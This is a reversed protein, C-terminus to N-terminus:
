TPNIPNIRKNGFLDTAGSIIHLVSADTDTALEAQASQLATVLGLFAPLDAMTVGEDTVAEVLNVLAVGVAKCKNSDYM